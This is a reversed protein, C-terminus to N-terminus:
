PKKPVFVMVGPTLEEDNWKYFADLWLAPNREPLVRRLLSLPGEDVDVYTIYGVVNPVTLRIGPLWEYPNARLLEYYRNSNKYAARAIDRPGEGDKLLWLGEQVEVTEM